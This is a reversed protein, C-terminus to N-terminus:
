KNKKRGKEKENMMISEKRKNKDSTQNIGPSASEFIEAEKQRHTVIHTHTSRVKSLYTTYIMCVYYMGEFGFLM